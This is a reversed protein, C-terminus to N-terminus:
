LESWHADCCPPWWAPDILCYGFLLLLAFWGNGARDAQCAPRSPMPYVCGIFRHGNNIANRARALKDETWGEGAMAALFAQVEAATAPSSKQGQAKCWAEWDRLRRAAEAMQPATLGSGDLNWRRITAANLESFRGAMVRDPRLVALRETLWADAYVTSPSLGAREAIARKTLGSIEGAAIADFLVKEIRERSSLGAAGTPMAV